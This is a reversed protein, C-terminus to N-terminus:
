AEFGFQQKVYINLISKLMDFGVTPLKDGIRSKAKNWVTNDRAADLFEHGSWTLSIPNWEEFERCSIHEAELYGAQFLIKVHYSTENTNYGEISLEFSRSLSGLEETQLLIQRILDIDRKM